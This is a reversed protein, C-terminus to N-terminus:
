TIYVIIFFPVVNLIALVSLTNSGYFRKIFLYMLSLLISLIPWFLLNGYFNFYRTLSHGSSYKLGLKLKFLPTLMLKVSAGSKEFGSFESTIFGGALTNIEVLSPLRLFANGNSGSIIKEETQLVRAGIIKTKKELTPLLGDILFTSYIIVCFLHFGKLRKNFLETEQEDRKNSEELRMGASILRYGKFGSKKDRGM